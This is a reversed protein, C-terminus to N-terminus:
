GEGLARGYCYRFLLEWERRQIRRCLMADQFGGTMASECLDIFAYPDWSSQERLFDAQGDAADRAIAAAEQRLTEFVPHGGLRHFWYKANGFDPERRHMLGHWYSGEASDISQSITHSEDLFDHYLWLASLCAKACDAQRVKQPACLSAVDLAALPQRMKENPSGPGLDFLRDEALLERVAPSYSSISMLL